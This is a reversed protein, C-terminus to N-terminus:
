FPRKQFNGHRLLFFPDIEARKTLIKGAKDTKDKAVLWRAPKQKLETISIIIIVELYRVHVM